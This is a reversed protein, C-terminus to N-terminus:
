KKAKLLEVMRQAFRRSAQSAGIIERLEKYDNLIRERQDGGEIIKRLESIVETPDSSSQLIERVSERELNINVLSFYPIKLFYPRLAVQYQPLRFLVVQPTGILATELTATGSTVIAAEGHKLLEYTQNEVFRIQSGKTEREYLERPLWAVGAIVFQYGEFSDAVRRMIPLITRIESARSGALLAIIPRESSLDNRGLFEEKSPLNECRSEIADVLPNGEFHAEIGRKRFYEREFPFIIFLEDVYKRIREIRSEKWAWVKPAIYFFTKIGLSKAHKAMKLNFGAYDILIVVDPRAQEIERRCRSLQGLITPLHRVVQVFGFFSSERYHLGLNERGGVEAMKDGGWFRFEAEPDAELIGRMLNAGHLDGSPEGAILFYRM